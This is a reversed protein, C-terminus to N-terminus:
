HLIPAGHQDRYADISECVKKRLLLEGARTEDRCVFHGTIFIVSGDDDEISASWTLGREDCKYIAIYILDRYSGKIEPTM